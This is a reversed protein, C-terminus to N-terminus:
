DRVQLDRVRLDRAPGPALRSQRALLGQARLPLRTPVQWDHPWQALQRVLKQAPHAQPWRTQRLAKVQAEIGAGKSTGM